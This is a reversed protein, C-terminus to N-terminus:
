RKRREDDGEIGEGAFIDDGKKRWAGHKTRKEDGDEIRL